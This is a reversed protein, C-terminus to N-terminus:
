TLQAEAAQGVRIQDLTWEVVQKAALAKMRQHAFKTPDADDSLCWDLFLAMEERARGVIYAGEPTKMWHELEIGIQADALMQRESIDLSATDFGKLADPLESAM